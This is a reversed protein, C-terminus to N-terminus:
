VHLWKHKHLCYYCRCYNNSTRLSKEAWHNFCKLDPYNSYSYSHWFNSSEAFRDQYSLGNGTFLFVYLCCKGFACNVYHWILSSCNFIVKKGFDGLTQIDDFKHRCIFYSLSSRLYPTLSLRITQLIIECNSIHFVEYAHWITVQMM